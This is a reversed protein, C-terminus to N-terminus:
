NRCCEGNINGTGNSMGEGKSCKRFARDRSVAKM